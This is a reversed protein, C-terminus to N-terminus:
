EGKKTSKKVSEFVVEAKASPTVERTSALNNIAKQIMYNLMFNSVVTKVM